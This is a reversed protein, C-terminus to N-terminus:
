PVECRERNEYLYDWFGKINADMDEAWDDSPSLAEAWNGFSAALFAALAGTFRTGYVDEM